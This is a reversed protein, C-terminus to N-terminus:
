TSISYFSLHTLPPTSPSHIQQYIHHPLSFERSDKYQEQFNCHICKGMFNHVLLGQLAGGFDLNPDFATAIFSAPVVSVHIEADELEEGPVEQPEKSQLFRVYNDGRHRSVAPLLL